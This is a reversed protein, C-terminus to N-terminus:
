SEDKERVKQFEELFKILGVLTLDWRTAGSEGFDWTFQYAHEGTETIRYFKLAFWSRPGTNWTWIGYPSTTETKPLEQFRPVGKLFHSIIKVFQRTETSLNLILTERNM